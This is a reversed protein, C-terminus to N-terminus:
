KMQCTEIPRIRIKYFTRESSEKKAIISIIQSDNKIILPLFPDVEKENDFIPHTTKLQKDASYISECVGAVFADLDGVYKHSEGINTINPAYVTLELEVTATLFPEIQHQKMVSLAQKRLKLILPAENNDSWLSNARYKRPPRGEVTFEIM